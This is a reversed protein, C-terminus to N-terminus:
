IPKRRLSRKLNIAFHCCPCALYHLTGVQKERVWIVEWRWCQSLRYDPREGHQEYHRRPIDSCPSMRKAESFKNRMQVRTVHATNQFLLEDFVLLHGLKWVSEAQRHLLPSLSQVVLCSLVAPFWVHESRVALRLAHRTYLFGRSSTYFHLLAGHM